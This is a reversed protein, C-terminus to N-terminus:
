VTPREDYVKTVVNNELDLVVFAPPPDGYSKAMSLLEARFSEITLCEVLVEDGEAFTLVKKDEIHVWVGFYWADQHTDYQKWGKNSACIGTDYVYRSCNPGVFRNTVKNGRDNTWTEM